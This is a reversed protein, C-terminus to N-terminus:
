VAVAIHSIWHLPIGPLANASAQPALAAERLWDAFHRDRRCSPLRVPPMPLISFRQRHGGSREPAHVLQLGSEGVGTWCLRRLREAVISGILM